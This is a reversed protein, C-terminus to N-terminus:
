MRANKESPIMDSPLIDGPIMEGSPVSDGPICDGSVNDSPNTDDPIWLDPKNNIIQLGITQYKTIEYVEDSIHRIIIKDSTCM